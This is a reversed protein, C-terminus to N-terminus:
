RLYNMCTIYDNKEATGSLNAGENPNLIAITRTALPSTALKVYADSVCIGNATYPYIYLPVM